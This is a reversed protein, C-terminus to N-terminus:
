RIVKDARKLMAPPLKLGILTATRYNLTLDFKSARELPLFKPKKGKIISDILRAAQRGMERYNPGYAALAGAIVWSEENFMTPLKKARATAFLFEAESEVLEDPVQFIAMGPEGPLSALTTKLEEVSKVGYGASELGIDKAASAARKFSDRAFSNNLDYFVVIKKASPVIQRVLALRKELTQSAYAAIGTLNEAREEPSKVIGAGIPNGPYVFVIPTDKTAESAVRTASNGTTFIVDVKKELLEGAAPQLAARNGKVNRTESFLEKGERYGLKELEETLGKIAQSQARGMEQVLMGLRAPTQALTGVPTAILLAIMAALCLYAPPNAISRSQNKQERLM